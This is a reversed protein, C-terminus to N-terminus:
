RHYPSMLAIELTKDGKSRAAESSIWCGSNPSCYGTLRYGGHDQRQLTLTARNTTHSTQVPLITLGKTTGDMTRVLLVGPRPILLEYAGAPASTKKDFQFAVPINGTLINAQANLIVSAASFFSLAVTAARLSSRNFKMPHNEQAGTLVPLTYHIFSDYTSPNAVWPPASDQTAV